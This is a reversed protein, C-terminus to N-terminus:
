LTNSISVLWLSQLTNEILQLMVCLKTTEHLKNFVSPINLACKEVAILVCELRERWMSNVSAGGVSTAVSAYSYACRM